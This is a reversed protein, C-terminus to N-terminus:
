DDDESIGPYMNCLAEFRDCAEKSWAEEPDENNYWNDDNNIWDEFSGTEKAELYNKLEAELYELENNYVLRNTIKSYYQM